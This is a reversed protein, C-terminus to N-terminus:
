VHTKQKLHTIDEPIFAYSCKTAARMPTHLESIAQTVPTIQINKTDQVQVDVIYEDDGTHTYDDNVVNQFQQMADDISCAM